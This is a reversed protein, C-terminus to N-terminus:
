TVANMVVGYRTVLIPVKAGMQISTAGCPVALARGTLILIEGITQHKNFHFEWVHDCLDEKMIRNRKGDMVALSYAALKSLGRIQSLRPIHAKGLWLEELKSAWLRDTSSVAHWARSVLLSLAVSRADLYSLIKLMIDTGFVELPDRRLPVDVVEEKWKKRRKRHREMELEMGAPDYYDFNNHYQQLQTTHAM